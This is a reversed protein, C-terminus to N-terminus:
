GVRKLVAGCYEARYAAVRSSAREYYQAHYAAVRASAIPSGSMAYCYRVDCLLPTPASGPRRTPDQRPGLPMGSRLVPCRTDATYSWVKNKKDRVRIMGVSGEWGKVQDGIDTGPKADTGSMEYAAIERDPMAYAAVGGRARIEPDKRESGGQAGARDPLVMRSRLVACRMGREYPCVM